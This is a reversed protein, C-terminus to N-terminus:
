ASALSLWFVGFFMALAELLLTIDVKRAVHGGFYMFFSFIFFIVKMYIVLDELVPNCNGITYM